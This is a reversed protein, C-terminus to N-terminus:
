TVEAALVPHIGHNVQPSFVSPCTFTVKFTTVSAEMADSLDFNIHSESVCM